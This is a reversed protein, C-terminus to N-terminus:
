TNPNDTIVQKLTAIFTENQFVGDEEFTILWSQLDKLHNSLMRGKTYHYNKLINRKSALLNIMHPFIFYFDSHIAPYKNELKNCKMWIHYRLDIYQASGLENSFSDSSYFGNDPTVAIITADLGYAFRLDPLSLSSYDPHNHMLILGQHRHKMLLDIENLFDVANETGEKELITEGFQNLIVAYEHLTNDGHQICLDGARQICTDLYTKHFPNM